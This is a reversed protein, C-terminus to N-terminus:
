ECPEPHYNQSNNKAWGTVLILSLHLGPKRDWLSLQGAPQIAPSFFCVCFNLLLKVTLLASM